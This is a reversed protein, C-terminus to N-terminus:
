KCIRQAVDNISISGDAVFYGNGGGPKYWSRNNDWATRYVRTESGGSCKVWYGETKRGANDYTESRIATAASSKSLNSASNTNTAAAPPTSLVDKVQEVVKNMYANEAALNAVGEKKSQNFLAQAQPTKSIAVKWEEPIVGGRVLIAPQPAHARLGTSLFRCSFGADVNTNMSTPNTLDDSNNLLWHDAQYTVGSAESDHRFFKSVRSGLERCDVRESPGVLSTVESKTPLRWDNLGGYSDKSAIDVMNLWPAKVAEGFCDPGGNWEKGVACKRWQLGTRSDSIIDPQAQPLKAYEREFESQSKEPLSVSNRVLRVQHNDYERSSYDRVDGNGLDISVVYTGVGSLPMSKVQTASSYAYGLYRAPLVNTLMKSAAYQEKKYDNYECGENKRGTIAQLEKATPLRWDNKDLFRSNKAIRMASYWSPKIEIGTCTKGNFSLGEACRKWMLGDRQDTVTGDKNDLFADFFTCASQAQFAFASLLLGVFLRYGTHTSTKIFQNM